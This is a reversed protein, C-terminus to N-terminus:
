RHGREWDWGWHGAADGQDYASRALAAAQATWAQYDKDSLVTLQGRMKYHHVGCHQACAIDFEGTEKAQFWLRNIAGPVADQKVRFNPLSFSHVVDTAALQLVVPADVPVRMDNLTVIDDATNFKGDGGAYRIDWAWQRANVQIRVARPHASAKDINWFVDDIDSLGHILLNGDVVGFILLSLLVAQFVATRASGTDYHARHRRGHRWCAWVIWVITALFMIGVFVSTTNMLWDVRWGYLSADHPLGWSTETRPAASGRRAALLAVAAVALLLSLRRV